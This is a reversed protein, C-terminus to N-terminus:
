SSRLPESPAAFRERLATKRFKGAATKPIEAVFEVGDPLQFHAFSRALHEVLEEAGAEAGDRLVVVALPREGWREHPVAIVAAEAVAPHGMLANELAVSSIWEGGSKILDKARDQIEVYGHPDITVIDGTRFWGDDTFRDAGEDSDYYAAAVWPGRVELEGMTEGDWPALEEGTRARIEVLPAPLGQKARVGYRREPPEAELESTVRSVTGLPTLETMGWAHVVAIGHREQFGEILARPAASGGILLMRLSSLDRSGPSADLERLLALWITPVGAAVTVREGEILELLSSADLLPGPFVLKAGVATATYPLGWANAHFMPVVPLVVDAEAIALLDVVASVLSHLVLARHSYVVGKPRGTTGSTYCMAGAEDERLPLPEFAAEDAGAILQEYEGPVVVVREFPARERFSDLVPALAEDVVAFRDGAHAAIYALDDPPLRPNLTHVVGGAAPVGFYVELHAAHNWCLTAVRDGRELGLARLAVALRRARAAVQGYATRALSGDPLRSIVEKRPFLTEARRLLLDLTLQTDMMLGDV